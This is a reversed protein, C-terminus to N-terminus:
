EIGNRDVGVIMLQGSALIVSKVSVSLGFTEALRLLVIKVALRLIETMLNLYIATIQSGSNTFNYLVESGIVCGFLILNLIMTCRNFSLTTDKAVKKLIVFSVVFSILILVLFGTAAVPGWRQLTFVLNEKDKMDAVQFAVIYGVTFSFCLFAATFYVSKLLTQRQNTLMM